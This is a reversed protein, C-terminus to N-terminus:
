SNIKDTGFDLEEPVIDDDSSHIILGGDLTLFPKLRTDWLYADLISFSLSLRTMQGVDLRESMSSNDEVTTNIEISCNHVIDAGHYPITIQLKPYNILNFVLERMYADAEQYKRTYVNVQYELQIPIANLQLVHHIDSSKDTVYLGDYSLPKKNPNVITYGGQRVITIIPLEIPKDRKTDALIQFLQRTQEPGYVHVDTNETWRNFKQLLATDYLFASM